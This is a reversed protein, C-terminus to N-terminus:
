WGTRRQRMSPLVHHVLNFSGTLNTAIMEIGTPRSSHSSVGTEACQHGRQVGTCRDIGSSGGGPPHAVQGRVPGHHRVPRRLRYGQWPCIGGQNTRAEGSRSRGPGRAPRNGGARDRHKPWDRQRGRDRTGNKLNAALAIEEPPTKRRLDRDLGSTRSSRGHAM